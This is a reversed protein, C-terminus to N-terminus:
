VAIAPIPGEGPRDESLLGHLRLTLVAFQQPNSRQREALVTTFANFLSWLTRPQFEEFSPQRWARILRPLLPATIIDREYARLLLADAADASLETYQWRRIRATEAERYQHLNQVAQSIAEHFRAQGHRTHKRAIVIESSFALNDCVFVRAGACFALPLSKDLSNRVGVALTVGSVIPAQLDITGFFRANHRTLALRTRSVQFGAAHLTELATDLVQVHSLPFWTPTAPPITVAALEERSVERAGRQILLTSTSM